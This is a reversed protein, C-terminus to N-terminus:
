RYEWERAAKNVDDINRDTELLHDSILVRFLEPMRKKFRDVEGVHTLCNGLIQLYWLNPFSRAVFDLIKAMDEQGVPYRKLDSYSYLNLMLDKLRPASIKPIDWIYNVNLPIYLVRLKLFEVNNFLSHPEPENSVSGEVIWRAYMQRREPELGKFFKNIDQNASPASWPNYEQRNRWLIRMAESFWLHNVLACRLLVGARQFYSCQSCHQDRYPNVCIAKGHTPCTDASVNFTAKLCAGCYHESAPHDCETPIHLTCLNDSLMPGGYMDGQDAALCEDCDFPRNKFNCGAPGHTPCYNWRSDLDNNIHEFVDSLLTPISYFRHAASLKPEQDAIM